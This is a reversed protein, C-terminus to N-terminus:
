IPSTWVTSSATQLMWIICPMRHDAYEGDSRFTTVEVFRSDSRVTVTGHKIGTPISDPFLEMVEEPRAATAIDWDNPETGLILDRVCGGVICSPYGHIKLTRLISRVYKPPTMDVM